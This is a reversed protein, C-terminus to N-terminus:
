ARHVQAAARLRPSWAALRARLKEDFSWHPMEAM